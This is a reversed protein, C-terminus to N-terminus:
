LRGDLLFPCQRQADVAVVGVEVLARPGHGPAVPLWSVSRAVAPLPPLGGHRGEALPLFPQAGELGPVVPGPVQADRAGAQERLAVLGLHDQPPEHLPAVQPQAHASSVADNM